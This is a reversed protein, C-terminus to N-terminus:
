TRMRLAGLCFDRSSWPSTPQFLHTPQIPKASSQYAPRRFRLDTAFKKAWASNTQRSVSGGSPRLFGTPRSSGSAPKPKENHADIFSMIDANLGAVSRHVDKQLRKRTLEAFWREVQNIWAASTPTFHVHRHRRRALWVRVRETKHTACDDMVLHVDMGEPVAAEMEKLFGLFETASRCTDIGSDM